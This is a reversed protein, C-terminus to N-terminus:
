IILTLTTKGKPWNLRYTAIDKQTNQTTGDLEGPHLVDLPKLMFVTCFDHGFTIGFSVALLSTWFHHGFTINFLTKLLATWFKRCITINM